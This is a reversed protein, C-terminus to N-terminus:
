SRYYGGKTMIQTAQTQMDKLAEDPKKEGTVVSAVETGVTEYLANSEPIPLFRVAHPLSEMLGSYYPRIPTYEKLLSARAPQGTNEVWAKGIAPDQKDGSCCFKIWEWAADKNNSYAPMILGLGGMHPAIGGKTATGKPVIAVKWVDSFKTFKPDNM